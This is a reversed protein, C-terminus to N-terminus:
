YSGGLAKRALRSTVGIAQMERRRQSIDAVYSSGLRNLTDQKRAINSGILNAFRKYAAASAALRLEGVPLTGLHGQSPRVFGRHSELGLQGLSDQARDLTNSNTSYFAVRRSWSHPGKVPRHLLQANGESDFLGLLWASREDDTEPSFSKLSDFRRYGNYTRTLWYGREDIRPAVNIGYASRIAVSFAEAFDEDAVRLCLYGSPSKGSGTSLWADGFLVGSLYAHPQRVTLAKVAYRRHQPLVRSPIPVQQRTRRTGTPHAPAPLVPVRVGLLRRPRVRHAVGPRQRPATGSGRSGAATRGPVSAACDHTTHASHTSTGCRERLISLRHINGPSPNVLGGSSV